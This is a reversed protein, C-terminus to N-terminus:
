IKKFKEIISLAKEMDFLQISEELKVILDSLKKHNFNENIKKFIFIIEEIENISSASSISNIEQKVSNFDEKLKEPFENSFNEEEELKNNSDEIVTREFEQNSTYYSSPLEIFNVKFKSGIGKKSELEIKGNLLFVLKKTISLGLGTGGYKSHDQNRGQTFAEFIGEKDEEAIGIGTDEIEFSVDLSSYAENFNELKVKLKVFGKETFKIANSVLNVLIQRLRIEDLLIYEPLSKDIEVIFSIKKEEIKASFLESIEDILKPIKILSLQINLKGAEVKSLDLIDNIISLLSKGSTRINEAFKLVKDQPNSNKILDAFGIIANMPTRIEHSINALFESKTKSAALAMKKDRVQESIDLGFGILWGQNFEDGFFYNQIFWEIGDNYLGTSIFEQPEGTKAKILLDKFESYIEYININVAQNQRLGLKFLGAGISERIIGKDDIRFVIVPLNTLVGSLIQSKERIVKEILKRETIDRIVAHIEMDGTFENLIFRSAVETWIKTGDKKYQEIEDVYTAKLSKRSALLKKVRMPFVKSTHKLSNPTFIKEISSSKIELVSYGTLNFISPSSYKIKYTIPDLVLIVDAMNETIVSYREENEILAKEASKRETINRVQILVGARINDLTYCALGVEVPFITKDKRVATSEFNATNFEGQLIKRIQDTFFNKEMVSFFQTASVLKLEDLSEFGFLSLFNSNTWHTSYDLGILAIGDPSIEILTRFLEEKREIEKQFKEKESYNKQHDEIMLNFTKVLKGFEDRSKYNIKAEWDGLAIKEVSDKILSLPFLFQKLTFSLIFYLLILFFLNVCILIFYFNRYLTNIKKLSERSGTENHEILNSVVSIIFDIQERSRETAEFYKSSDKKRSVFILEKNLDQYREISKLFFTEFYDKEDNNLELNLYKEILASYERKLFALKKEVDDMKELQVELLHRIEWRRYEQLKLNLLSLTVIRNVWKDNIYKTESIIKHIDYSLIISNIITFFLLIIIAFITKRSIKQRRYTALFKRLFYFLNRM